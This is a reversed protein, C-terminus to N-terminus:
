LLSSTKLEACVERGLVRDIAKSSAIRGRMSTWVRQGWGSYMSDYQISFIHKKGPPLHNMGTKM